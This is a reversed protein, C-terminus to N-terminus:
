LPLCHVSVPVLTKGQDTRVSLYNVDPRMKNNICQKTALMVENSDMAEPGKYNLLKYDQQGGGISSCAGLSAVIPLIILFKKM